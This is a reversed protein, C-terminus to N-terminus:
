SVSQKVGILRLLAPHDHTEIMADHFTISLLEDLSRRPWNPDPSHMSMRRLILKIAKSVKPKARRCRCWFRKAKECAIITSSNWSNDLNQTPVHVLFFVDHPKAALALRFRLIKKAPLYQVAIEEDILHLMDRKTGKIPVACFM